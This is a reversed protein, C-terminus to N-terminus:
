VLKVLKQLFLNLITNKRIHDATAGLLYLNDYNMLEMGDDFSLEEGAIVRDIANCKDVLKELM